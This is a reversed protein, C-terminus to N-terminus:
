SHTNIRSWDIATDGAIVHFRRDAPLKRNTERIAALWEAYIPSDWVAAKTTDRWIQRVQDMPVEVGAIYRDLLPQNNRSVFEVVIDQATEQFKPDQVLRIYFDGMQRLGPVWEGIMVVPHKQFAAVVGQVADVPPHDGQSDQFCYVASSYSFILLLIAFLRRYTASGSAYM